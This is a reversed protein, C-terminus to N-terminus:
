LDVERRGEIARTLTLEDVYELEGGIPLGFAIRSIKVNFPKLIRAIYMSTAEGEVSPNLALIVEKVNEKAVRELLEKLRLEEPGIGDLPSIMGQLVHYVGRYENTKEIAILDKAECVVCITTKDRNQNSCIECPNDASINFCIDCYKITEKAEILAAAFREVEEEPMKLIQFAMRQASKPGISPLKQFYEILKALPKTYQM